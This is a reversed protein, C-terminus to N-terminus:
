ELQANNLASSAMWHLCCANAFFAGADVDNGNTKRIIITQQPYPGGGRISMYASFSPHPAVPGEGFITGLSMDNNVGVGSAPMFRLPIKQGIGVSFAVQSSATLDFGFKPIMLMVHRGNKILVCNLGQANRTPNNLQWAVGDNFEYEEYYHHKNDAKRVKDDKYEPYEDKLFTNAM